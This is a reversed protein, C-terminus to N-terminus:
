IIYLRVKEKRKESNLLINYLWSLQNSGIGGNYPVFRMKEYPLNDFWGGSVSLDNPNNHSLTHKAEELLSPSSYGILSVDYSDLVIFRWGPYPTWDYYMKDPKCPGGISGLLSDPAPSYHKFLDERKFTYFDHNGLCYHWSNVNSKRVLEKIDNLCADQSSTLSTKGDV